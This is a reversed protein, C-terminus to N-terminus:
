FKWQVSAQICFVKANMFILSCVYTNKVNRYISSLNENEAQYRVGGCFLCLNLFVIFYGLMNKIEKRFTSM